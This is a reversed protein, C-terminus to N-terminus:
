RRVPPSDLLVFDILREVKDVRSVRVALRDGLRFSKRSREGVLRYSDQHFTYYDDMMSNVHVLGEVFVEDLLVFLGFSTVGAITGTFEDGLHREMYEAKKLDVSEREAAEAVREQTSCRDAKADLAEGGWSDPATRGELLTHALVRHLWLDPYRRIPSTFHTYHTAALGFHGLNASSYRARSMSRLVVTSVLRGEPTGEVKALITQLQKPGVVGKSTKLGLRTLFAQLELMKDKPPAEHVRYLVPLGAAAARRAVIENALLMFDEVVRHSELRERRQIEVPQGEDGLVVRAEPLDFDLAGRDERRSRLMQALRSLDALAQDTPGDISLTGDLVAGAEEYSLKHRSQVRTRELRTETVEGADNLTAFVSMAFRDVGPLLSCADTSLVHPLMPIVRDVLYVSTARKLAELDVPDGPEVYHSVDAIHIGVEIGGEELRRVSLADDHDKADAPDITFAHVDTRDVRGKGPEARRRAVVDEAHREVEHPFASPLRHGHIVALIDVGPDGLTGLVTEITGTPNMKGSGFTTIRVVVVDGDAAGNEEGQVVLVERDIKRHQPHVVGFPRTSRYTGVLTEHARELVKIVRGVPSRGRPRGEVRTVVQDGDMASELSLGPVFVEQGGADPKVFGDGKSTVSLRGVVLNIKEPVAFRQGKVRYLRGREVLEFLFSRFERFDKTPVKLAKALEKAKLPGRSSEGVHRVVSHETPLNPRRAVKVFCRSFSDSGM